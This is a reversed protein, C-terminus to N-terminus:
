YLYKSLVLEKPPRFQFFGTSFLNGHLNQDIVVIKNTNQMRAQLVDGEVVERNARSPRARFDYDGESNFTNGKVSGTSFYKKQNPYEKVGTRVFGLDSVLNYKVYAM